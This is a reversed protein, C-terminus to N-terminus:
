TYYNLDDTPAIIFRNRYPVYEWCFGTKHTRKFIDTYVIEGMCLLRSNLAKINNVEHESLFGWADWFWAYGAGISMGPPIEPADPDGALSTPYGQSAPIVTAYAHLYKLIAPTKGQNRYKVPFNNRVPNMESHSLQGTAPMKVAVFVYPREIRRLHIEQRVAMYVLGATALILGLTLYDVVKWAEGAALEGLHFDWTATQAIVGLLLLVLVALSALGRV